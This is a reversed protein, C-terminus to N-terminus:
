EKKTIQLHQYKQKTKLLCNLHRLHQQLMFEDFEQIGYLIEIVEKFYDSVEKLTFSMDDCGICCHEENYNYEKMLDEFIRNYSNFEQITNKM